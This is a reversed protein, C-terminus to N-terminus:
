NLELIYNFARDKKINEINYNKFINQIYGNNWIGINISTNSNSNENNVIKKNKLIVNIIRASGSKNLYKFAKKLIFLQFDTIHQTTNEKTWRLTKELLSPILPSIFNIEILYLLSKILHLLTQLPLDLYYKYNEIQYFQHNYIILIQNINNQYDNKLKKKKTNLFRYSFYFLIDNCLELQTYSIFNINITIVKKLVKEISQPLFNDADIEVLNEKSLYQTTLGIGCLGNYLSTNNVQGIKNFESELLEIGINYAEINSTLRYFEFMFLSIASRGNLGPGYPENPNKSIYDVLFCYTKDISM